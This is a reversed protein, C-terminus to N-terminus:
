IHILSLAYLYDIAQDYTLMGGAAAAAPLILALALVALAVLLLTRRRDM